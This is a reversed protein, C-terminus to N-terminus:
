KSSTGWTASISRGPITFRPRRRGPISSAWDEYLLIVGTLTPWIRMHRQFFLACAARCRDSLSGRFRPDREVIQIFFYGTVSLMVAAAPRAINRSFSAPLYHTAVIVLLMLGRLGDVAADRNGRVSM